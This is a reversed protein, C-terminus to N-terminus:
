ARGKSKIVSKPVDGSLGEYGELSKDSCMAARMPTLSLSEVM